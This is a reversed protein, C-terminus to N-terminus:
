GVEIWETGNSQWIEQSNVAMYVTGVPVADAAPREAATAGFKERDRMATLLNEVSDVHGAITDQKAATAPAAIIKALIQALATELESARINLKWSTTNLPNGDPGYLEVAAIGNRGRQYEYEDATPNFIQPAPKADVDKKISKTNGPM